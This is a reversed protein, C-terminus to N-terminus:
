GNGLAFVCVPEGISVAPSGAPRDILCDAAALAGLASSDQSGALRVEGGNSVARLFERRKGVAPLPEAARMTVARPLPSADGMAARVLPLAFLFATVFSSVPNGPLGLIVQRGWAAERTAVMLPKGPKIAVKWFAITAGWDKLAQQILDHDGVSAGGSTVLIHIDEARKLAAALAARDDAVPGLAEVAGVHPHLMAGLMVGNSAPIQHAGCPQGPPVLEDGSDLVAVRPPEVLPLSAHGAAVALALTAPTCATGRALIRDGQRFDFGAKRVHRGPAPLESATVMDGDVQANEQILVSESGSPMHAGTSIRVCQGPELAGGFPAGARSEGVRRWPGRGPAIAYGDMASLDAAPQTRLAVMDRALYRKGTIRPHIDVPATGTEPALALLRRQAEELTLLASV